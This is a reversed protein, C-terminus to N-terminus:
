SNVTMTQCIARACRASLDASFPRWLALWHRGVGGASISNRQKDALEEVDGRSAVLGCTILEILACDYSPLPIVNRRCRQM